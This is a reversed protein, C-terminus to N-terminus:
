IKVNHFFLDGIRFAATLRPSSGEEKVYVMYIFILFIAAFTLGIVLSIILGFFSETTM